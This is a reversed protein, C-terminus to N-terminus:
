PYKQSFRTAYAYSVGFTMGKERMELIERWNLPNLGRYEGYSQTLDFEGNLFGTTLFITGEIGYNRMIPFAYEYNDGYGDDFTLMALRLPLEKKARRLKYFAPLSIINFEEVLYEMQRRFDEPRTSYAGNPHVSHYNLIVSLNRKNDRRKFIGACVRKFKQKTEISPFTQM